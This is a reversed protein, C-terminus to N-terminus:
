RNPDKMMQYFRDPTVGAQRADDNIEDATYGTSRGGQLYYTKGGPLLTSTGIPRLNKDVEQGRYYYHMHQPSNTDPNLKGGVNDVKDSAWWLTNAQDLRKKVDAIRQDIVEVQGQMGPMPALQQRINNLRALMSQAIQGVALVNAVTSHQVQPTVDAGLKVRWAGGFGRGSEAYHGMNQEGATVDRLLGPDASFGKKSFWAQVNGWFGRGSGPELFPDLDPLTGAVNDTQTRMDQPMLTPKDRALVKDIESKLVSEYTRPGASHVLGIITKVDEPKTIGADKLRQELVTPGKPASVDAPDDLAKFNATQAQLQRTEEVTHERTAEREPVEAQTASTQPGKIYETRATTEGTQPGTIYSTRAGAEGTQAKTLDTKPGATYATEATELGARAKEAEADAKLKALIDPRAEEKV